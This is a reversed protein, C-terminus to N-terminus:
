YEKTNTNVKSQEIYSTLFYNKNSIDLATRASVRLLALSSILRTILAISLTLFHYSRYNNTFNDDKKTETHSHNYFLYIFCIFNWLGDLFLMLYIIVQLLFANQPVYYRHRTQSIVADALCIAKYQSVVTFFSTVSRFCYKNIYSTYLACPTINTESKM